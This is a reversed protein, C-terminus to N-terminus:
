QQGALTTALTSAAYHGSIMAAVIGRFLGCADGAVWAPTHPLRLDGDVRPYHGIGELTPGILVTEEDALAPFREALLVLGHHLLERLTPGYVANLRDQVDQDRHLFQLLPLTFQAQPDTLAALLAPLVQTALAPDTIRTNFGSNSMGTPPCDARGSVTWLGQTQSLVAEGERCACFTRWEVGRHPDKFRLKPDLQTMSRFFAKQAPQQIRVGIELRHFRWSRTLAGLTLPGFRGTALVLRRAALHRATGHHELDLHFLATDPDHRAGTVEHDTLHTAGATRVLHDTLALRADLGLYNSPYDKLVWAGNQPSYATPRDPFPPVDLGAARLIGGTWTYADRLQATRPLSWLSNASPYFSFKGDSFLGAGGHGSTTENPNDRDRAALPRGADILVTRHSTGALRAAAALGAPGAGIIAVDTDAVASPAPM